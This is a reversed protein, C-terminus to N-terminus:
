AAYIVLGLHKRWGGLDALLFQGGLGLLKQILLGLTFPFSGSHVLPVEADRPAVITSLTNEPMKGIDHSLCVASTSM